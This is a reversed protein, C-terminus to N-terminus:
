KKARKLEEVIERVHPKEQGYEVIQLDASLMRVGALKFGRGNNQAQYLALVVRDEKEVQVKTLVWYLDNIGSQTGGVGGALSGGQLTAPLVAPAPAPDPAAPPPAARLRRVEKTLDELVQERDFTPQQGKRLEEMGARLSALERTVASLDPPPPTCGSLLLVVAALRHM